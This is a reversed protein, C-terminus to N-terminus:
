MTVAIGQMEVYDGGDTLWRDYQAVYNRNGTSTPGHGARDAARDLKNWRAVMELIAAAVIKSRRQNRVIMARRWIVATIM